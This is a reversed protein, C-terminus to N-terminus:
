QLGGTFSLKVRAVLSSGNLFEFDIKGSSKISQAGMKSSRAKQKFDSRTISLALSGFLGCQQPDGITNMCVDDILERLSDAFDSPDPSLVPNGRADTTYTGEFDLTEVGDDLLLRFENASLGEAANPGFSLSLTAPGSIKDSGQGPASVRGKLQASGLWDTGPLSIQAEAQGALALFGVTLALALAKGM